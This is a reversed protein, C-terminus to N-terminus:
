RRGAAARCLGAVRVPPQLLHTERDSPKQAVFPQRRRHLDCLRAGLPLGAARGRPQADRRRGRQLAPRHGHLGPRDLFGHRGHDARPLRRGHHRRGDGSLRVSHDLRHGRGHPQLEPFAAAVVGFVVTGDGGAASHRAARPRVVAAPLADAGGADGCGACLPLFPGFGAGHGGLSPCRSFRISGTVPRPWPGWCM